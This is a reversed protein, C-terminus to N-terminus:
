DNKILKKNKLSENKIVDEIKETIKEWTYQKMRKRVKEADIKMKLAKKIAIPLDNEIDKDNYYVVNDFNLIKVEKLRASIIKKGLASYEFIKIPSAADRFANIDSINLCIESANLIKFLLKRDKIQGYFTVNKELNNESCYSKANAIEPGHGIIFLHIDPIDKRVKNIAELVEIIGSWKGFYSVYALSNRQINKNNKSKKINLTWSEVGNPIKYVHKNYQSAKDKLIDSVAFVAKARQLQEKVNNKVNLIKYAFKYFLSGYINAYEQYDDNYDFIIPLEEPPMTENFFSQSIIIDIENENFIKKIQKKFLYSNIIPLFFPFRSIKHIKIGEQEYYETRWSNKINYYINKFTPPFPMDWMIMHVENKKALYKCLQYRRGFLTPLMPIFIIKERM